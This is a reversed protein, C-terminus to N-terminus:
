QLTRARKWRRHFARLPATLRWSHSARLAAVEAELAKVRELQPMAVVRRPGDDGGRVARSSPEIADLSRSCSGTSVRIAMDGHPSFGRSRNIPHNNSKITSTLIDYSKGFLSISGLPAANFYHHPYGTRRSSLSLGGPSKGLSPPRPLNRVRGGLTQTYAGASRWM